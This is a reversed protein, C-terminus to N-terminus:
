AMGIFFCLNGCGDACFTGRDFGVARVLERFREGAGKLTVSQGNKAAFRHTSCLLQLGAVDIAGTGTLDIVLSSAEKFGKLLQDRVEGVCSVTLGEDLVLLGTKGAKDYSWTAM